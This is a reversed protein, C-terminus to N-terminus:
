DVNKSIMKITVNLVIFMSFFHGIEWASRVDCTEAMFPRGILTNEQDVVQVSVWAAAISLIKNTWIENHACVCRM